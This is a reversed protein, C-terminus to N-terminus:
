RLNNLLPNSTEEDNVNLDGFEHSFVEVADWIWKRERCFEHYLVAKQHFKHIFLVKLKADALYQSYTSGDSNLLIRLRLQICKLSRKLLKAIYESSKDLLFLKVIFYDEIPNVEFDQTNSTSVKYFYEDTLYEESFITEWMTGKFDESLEVM